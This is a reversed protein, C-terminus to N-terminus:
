LYTPTLLLSVSMESLTEFVPIKLLVCNYMRFLLPTSNRLAELGLGITKRSGCSSCRFLDDAISPAQRRTQGLRHHSIALSCLVLEAHAKNLDATLQSVHMRLHAWHQDVSHFQCGTRAMEIWVDFCVKVDERLAGVKELAARRFFAEPQVILRDGM